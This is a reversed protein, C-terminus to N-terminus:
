SLPSTVFEIMVVAAGVAPGGVVLARVPAALPWVTRDENQYENVLQPTNDTGAMITFVAPANDLAITVGPSYPTTVVVKRRLIRAGAPIIETSAVTVLAVPFEIWQSVVALSPFGVFAPVGGIIITTDPAQSTNTLGGDASVVNTGAASDISSTPGLAVCACDQAEVSYTRVLPLVDDFLNPLRYWGALGEDASVVEDNIRVGGNCSDFVWSDRVGVAGDPNIQSGDALIGKSGFARFIVNGAHRIRGNNSLEVFASAAALGVCDVVSGQILIIQGGRASLVGRAASGSNQLWCNFLEVRGQAPAQIRGLEFKCDRFGFKEPGETLLAAAVTTTFRLFRANVQLGDSFVAPSAGTTYAIETDINVIKFSNGAVPVALVTGEQSVSVRTVGPATTGTVDNRRIWGRRGAAPGGTWEILNGKLDDIVAGVFGTVDLELRAQTATVAAGSQVAVAGDSTTGQLLVNSPFEIVDPLSFIGVGIDVTITAGNNDGIDRVARQITAYPSVLTGLGFVDDGGIVVFLTAPTSAPQEWPRYGVEVVLNSWAAGDYRRWRLITTNFYLDGAGPVPDGPVGTGAPDVALEGYNRTGSDKIIKGTLGDFIAIGLDESAGPGVVDGGGGGGGGAGLNVLFPM